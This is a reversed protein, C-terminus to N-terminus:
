IGLFVYLRFYVHTSQEIATSFYSRKGPRPGGPTGHAHRTLLQHHLINVLPIKLERFHNFGWADSKTLLESRKESTSPPPSSDEEESSERRVHSSLEELRKELAAIKSLKPSRRPRAPAPTQNVCPKDLRHCRDCKLSGLPGPVCRAKAKACTTCAKPGKNKAQTSNPSM